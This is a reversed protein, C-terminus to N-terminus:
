KLGEKKLFGEILEKEYREKLINASKSIVDADLWLDWSAYQEIINQLVDIVKIAQNDIDKIRQERTKESTVDMFKNIDFISVGEPFRCYIKQEGMNSILKKDEEDFVILIPQEKSDYINDGIKVIM